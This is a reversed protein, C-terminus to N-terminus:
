RSVNSMLAWAATSSFCRPYSMESGCCNVGSSHTWRRLTDRCCEALSNGFGCTKPAPVAQGRLAYDARQKFNIVNDGLRSAARIAFIIQKQRTRHAITVLCIPEFRNIGFATHSDREEVGPRCPPAVMKLPDLLACDNTSLRWFAPRGNGRQVHIVRIYDRGTAQPYDSAPM